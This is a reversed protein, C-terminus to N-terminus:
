WESFNGFDQDPRQPDQFSLCFRKLKKEIQTQIQEFVTHNCTM